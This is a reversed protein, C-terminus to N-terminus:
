PQVTNLKGNLAQALETSTLSKILSLGMSQNSIAKAYAANLYPSYKSNGAVYTYFFPVSVSNMYRRAQKPNDGVLQSPLEIQQSSGKGEGIVSFHTGGAIVALYKQPNGIWSFPLIQENLAPAVTDDSSAVIMVPTQIQSLGAEGFVTSTIPNVAIAAKIREDRLNYEKTNDKGKLELARCQLLLSMNWTKNLAKQNCDKAIQVFNLKAGTLALATYGGLSQGFVGVQQLNLRSQFRSDSRNVKELQDLIYKVDLPRNYFEEPAAIETARGDLLSQLQKTDSGPHNPVVVAFGHSALHSGLYAFNSSDTGLGHSIVIVPVQTKVKPLYIDTLLLRNRALDFFKLTQKQTRLRGQRRFDPIRSFNPLRGIAAELDSKEAVTTVARNTESVLNELEAAISLTRALDLHISPTPYKRLVNLLTLGEPEKAALILASRLAYFGAKPQRSKTHIVQQLRQLLFEGQTTYLFQSVAVPHVKIPTVLVQRLEQIQEPQLYHKYVALEKTIVEKKAFDELAEMSISLEIASYSAYIREASEASNNMGLTPLLMSLLVLLSYKKLTSKGNAFLSKM